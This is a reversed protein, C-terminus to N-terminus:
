CGLLASFLRWILSVSLSADGDDLPWHLGVCLPYAVLDSSGLDWRWGGALIIQLCLWLHVEM